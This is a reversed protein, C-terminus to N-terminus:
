SFSLFLSGRNLAFPYGRAFHIKGVDGAGGSVSEEWTARLSERICTSCRAKSVKPVVGWTVFSKRRGERVSMLFLKGAKHRMERPILTLALRM